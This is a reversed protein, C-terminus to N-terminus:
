ATQSFLQSRLCARVFAEVTAHKERRSIRGSDLSFAINDMNRFWPFLSEGYKQFVFGIRSEAPKKGDILISGSDYPILDAVINLLTSKGCGNPGFISVFEGKNVSLSLRELVPVSGKGPERYSKSVENIHVYPVVIL